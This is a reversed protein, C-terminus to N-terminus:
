TESSVFRMMCSLETRPRGDGRSNKKVEQSHMYKWINITHRM